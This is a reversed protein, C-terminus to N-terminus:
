LSKFLHKSHLNDNDLGIQIVLFVPVQAFPFSVVQNMEKSLRPLTNQIALSVNLLWFFSADSYNNQLHGSM